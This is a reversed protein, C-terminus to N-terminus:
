LDTLPRGARCEPNWQLQVCKRAKILVNYPSGPTAKCNVRLHGNRLVPPAWSLSPNHTFTHTYTHGAAEPSPRDGGASDLHWGLSSSCSSRAARGSGGFCGLNLTAPANELMRPVAGLAPGHARPGAQGGKGKSPREAMVHPRRTEKPSLFSFVFTKRVMFTSVQFMHFFSTLFCPFYFGTRIGRM